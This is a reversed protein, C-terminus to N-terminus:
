AGDLGSLLLFFVVYAALAAGFGVAAGVGVRRATSSDASALGPVRTWVLAGAGLMLAVHVPAILNENVYDIVAATMPLLVIGLVVLGVIVVVRRSRNVPAGEIMSM